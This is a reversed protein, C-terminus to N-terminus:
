FAIGVTDFALSTAFTERCSTTKFREFDLRTSISRGLLGEKLHAPRFRRQTEM